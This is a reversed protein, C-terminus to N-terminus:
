ILQVAFEDFEELGSVAALEGFVYAIGSVGNLVGWESHAINGGYQEIRVNCEWNSIMYKGAEVADNLYRSDDTVRALKTLFYIVGPSGSYLSFQGMFTDDYPDAPSFPEEEWYIGETTKVATNKFMEAAAKAAQLYE